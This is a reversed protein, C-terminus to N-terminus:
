IQFLKKKKELVYQQQNLVKVNKSFLFFVQVLLFGEGFYLVKSDVKVATKPFKANDNVIENKWLKQTVRSYSVASSVKLALNNAKNRALVHLRATQTTTVIDCLGRM